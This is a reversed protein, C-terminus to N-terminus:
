GFEQYRKFYDEAKEIDNLARYCNAIVPIAEKRHQFKLLHSLATKFKGINMYSVALCIHLSEDEPFLAMGELLIRISEEFAGETQYIMGLGLYARAKPGYELSRRYLKEAIQKKHPIVDIGAYDGKEFTMALRSFFDSHQPYLEKRDILRLAEIFEPLKEYFSARLKQGFALILDRSLAPDTEFYMIDEIRNLWIDDSVKFKKKYDQYLATGPFVDLIYFIASLPKITDILDITQQITQWSEQPCGYIFYARAMMGYHQTLEFARCIQQDSINKKLFKRINQSGSEVGYSIQICGAKRMWFLVEEDIMDVRSIAAWDIEMKKQIIKRCIEIVRNRNITFTDDSVYIFRIGRAYLLELQEVFYDPSHFRVQRGWFQPSGCFNCKGACGRTLSVHQYNFYQAPNPLQDLDCIVAADENRVVQGDRRYALGKIHEIKNKEGDNLCTVLNLFTYEGEGIVVYDIEPFHGLFHEWLFTAGIGGFVIKIDPNIQRAIRAIEIGGWRNAHLISFGIVDPQTEILRDKIKHPAENIAHWNLIQVDYGHKKLLAAIYYVGQPVISVDEVQLRTELYYPYILLIKM